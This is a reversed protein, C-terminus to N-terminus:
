ILEAAPQPVHAHLRQKLRTAAYVAISNILCISHIHIYIYICLPFRQHTAAVLAPIAAYPRSHYADLALCASSMEWSQGEIQQGTRRASEVDIDIDCSWIHRQLALTCFLVPQLNTGPCEKHQRKKINLFCPMALPGLFQCSGSTGKEPKSVTRLLNPCTMTHRSTAPLSWSM